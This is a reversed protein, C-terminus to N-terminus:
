LKINVDNFGEECQETKFINLINLLKNEKGM